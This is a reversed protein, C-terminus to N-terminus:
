LCRPCNTQSSDSVWAEWNNYRPFYMFILFLSVFSLFYFDMSIGSLLFYVLGLIAPVECLALTLITARFLKAILSREDDAQTKRLLVARLLRMFVVMLVAAAYFLYRLTGINYLYVFGQFPKVQAKIIEAVVAYVFLSAVVAAGIIVAVRYRKRLEGQNEM